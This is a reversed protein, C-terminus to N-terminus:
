GRPLGRARAPDPSCRCAPASARCCPGREIEEGRGLPLMTPDFMWNSVVRSRCGGGFHDPSSRRRRTRCTRRRWPSGSGRRVAQHLLAAVADDLYSWERRESSPRSSAEEQRLLWALAIQANAVGRSKAMADVREVIRETRTRRRPTSSRASDPRDAIQSTAAASPAEARPPRARPAGPSSVWARISASRSAWRASVREERYLLNYYTRCRSGFCPGMRASRRSLSSRSFQWAYM